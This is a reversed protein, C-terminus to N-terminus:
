GELLVCAGNMVFPAEDCEPSLGICQFVVDAARLETRDVATLPLAAPRDLQPFAFISKCDLCAVM